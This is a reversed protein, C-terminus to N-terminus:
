YVHVMGYLFTWFLIYTIWGSTLGSTIVSSKNLFTLKNGSCHKVVIYLSLFFACIFYFLFGKWSTLGITGAAVGSLAALSTRYFELVSHNNRIALESYGILEGTKEVTRLKTRM